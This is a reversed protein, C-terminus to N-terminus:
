KQDEGAKRHRSVFDVLDQRSYRVSRKGLRVIPVEGAKTLSHLHRTSVALVRAAEAVRMLGAELLDPTRGNQMQM